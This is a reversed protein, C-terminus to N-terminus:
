FFASYVESMLFNMFKRYDRSIEDTIEMEQLQLNEENFSVFMKLQLYQFRCTTTKPFDVLQSHINEALFDDFNLCSLQPSQSSDESDVLCTSLTFLLTMLTETVYKDTDMGLIHSILTIVCQTEENFENVNIPFPYNKRHADPKFCSKFLAERKEM